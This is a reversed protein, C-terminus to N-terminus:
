HNSRHHLRECIQKTRSLLNQIERAPLLGPKNGLKTLGGRFIGRSNQSWSLTLTHNQVFLELSWTTPETEGTYRIQMELPNTDLLWRQMSEDFVSQLEPSDQAQLHYTESFVRSISVSPQLLSNLAATMGRGSKKSLCFTPLQVAPDVLICFAAPLAEGLPSAAMASSITHQRVKSELVAFWRGDIQGTIAQRVAGLKPPDIGSVAQM